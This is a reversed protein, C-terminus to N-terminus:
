ISQDICSKLRAEVDEAITQLAEGGVMGILSTPKPMGIKTGQGEEYIVIKCPLFYGVIRNESLV